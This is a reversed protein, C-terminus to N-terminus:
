LFVTTELTKIELTLNKVTYTYADSYCLPSSRERLLALPSYGELRHVQAKQDLFVVRLRKSSIDTATLSGTLLVLHVQCTPGM